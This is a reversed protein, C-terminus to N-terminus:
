DKRIVLHTTSGSIGNMTVGVAGSQTQLKEGKGLVFENGMVTIDPTDDVSGAVNPFHGNKLCDFVSAISALGSCADLHGLNAKSAGLVLRSDRGVDEMVRRLAEAELTDGIKTGTGHSEIYLADSFSYSSDAWAESITKTQVRVSPSTFSARHSGASNTVARDISIPSTHRRSLSLAGFGLGPFSGDRDLSFPRCSGSSSFIPSMGINPADVLMNSTAILAGDITRNTMMAWAVSVMSGFSDCTSAMYLAPGTTGLAYSIIGPLMDYSAYRIKDSALQANGVSVLVAIRNGEPLRIKDVANLIARSNVDLGLSSFKSFVPPITPGSSDALRRTYSDVRRGERLAETTSKCTEGAVTFYLDVINM